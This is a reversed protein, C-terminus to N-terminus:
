YRLLPQDFQPAYVFYWDNGVWVWKTPVDADFPAVSIPKGTQPVFVPKVEYRVKMDVSAVNGEVAFKVPEYGLYTIVGSNEVYAKLPTAAQYAFDFYRYAAEYDGAMRAKWLGQVRDELRKQRQAVDPGTKKAYTAMLKTPNDGLALAQVALNGEMPKDGPYREYGIAAGDGWAVLQPWGLSEMGPAAIAQPTSWSGGQDYSVALYINPRIDRFDLWAAVVPGAGTALITPLTSRTNDNSKTDLRQVNNLWRGTVIDVSATQITPKADGREETWVLHARDGQKSLALRIGSNIVASSGTAVDGIRQWNAGGDQTVFAFVGANLEDAAIVARSGVARMTLSSIQHAATAVEKPESWTVGEDASSRLLLRFRQGGQPNPISDTWALLWQTSTKVLQPEFAQSSRGNPPVVDQRQDPGPWNRGADVSRNFFVQYNPLREDHYAMGVVGNSGNVVTFPPLVGHDDNAMAVPSFHEGGDASTTFYINKGDEHSWWLAQLREGDSHLQFYSGGNKVRATEDLLQRKGRLQLAVRGDKTGYVVALDNGVQALAAKNPETGSRMDTIQALLGDTSQSPGSGACGSLLALVMGWGVLYKSM